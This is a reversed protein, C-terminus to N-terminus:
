SRHDNPQLQWKSSWEDVVNYQGSLDLIYRALENITCKYFIENCVYKAGSPACALFMVAHPKNRHPDIAVYVPWHEPIDFPDILHKDQNYSKFVRGSLNAPRGFRRTEIEDATLKAFFKEKGEQSLHVNEDTAGVFVAYDKNKPDMGKLYIEEYIWPEDILTCTYWLHGNSKMLGRSIAIYIEKRSPEDLWCWDLTTGEFSMDKQEASKFYSVSGSRWMVKYPKGQKDNKINVIDRSGVVSRLKPLIDNEIGEELKKATM